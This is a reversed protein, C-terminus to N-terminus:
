KNIEREKKKKLLFKTIRNKLKIEVSFLFVEVSNKEM